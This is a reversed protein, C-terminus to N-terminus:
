LTLFPRPVRNLSLPEFLKGRGVLLDIIIQWFGCILRNIVDNCSIAHADYAVHGFLFDAQAQGSAPIEHRDLGDEPRLARLPSSPMALSGASPSRGRAKFAAPGSLGHAGNLEHRADAQLPGGRWAGSPRLTANSRRRRPAIPAPPKINGGGAKIAKSPGLPKMRPMSGSNGGSM